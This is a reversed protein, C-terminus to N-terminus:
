EVITIFYWLADDMEFCVSETSYILEGVWEKGDGFRNYGHPDKPLQHSELYNYLRKLSETDGFVEMMMGNFFTIKTVEFVENGSLIKM